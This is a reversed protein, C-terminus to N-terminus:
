QRPLIEEYKEKRLKMSLNARATGGSLSITWHHGTIGYLLDSIDFINYATRLEVVRSDVGREIVLTTVKEM